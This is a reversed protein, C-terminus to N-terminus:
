RSPAPLVVKITDAKGRKLTLTQMAEQGNAKVTLRYDGCFGRLVVRGQADTTATANTWWEEHILRRLREYAPKPSLDRRVLGAPAGQWGGDMLDWWTIAEVAPHSFLVRYFKEVYEAQRAEGEATSPWEEARARNQGRWGHEGSLVTVETFHLPLGFRKFTECVQWVREIPWEGRHMHSQIGIAGLPKHASLLDQILQECAAGTNFDNYLLLAQPNAQHAWELAEGVVTAAGAEKVWRGLGNEVRHSVTAENVVDWRDIVGKFGAVIRRVRAELLRRAETPDQPGWAPYVEHWVLPHGKVAVGHEQLWRAQRMLHETHEQGPQPEYSGWYFGLTAYNLLDTFRRAYTEDREANRGGLLPFANAGFLFAHRQQALHVTAGAVPKGAPDVVRVELDTKRHQEIRAAAGELIEKETMRPEGLASPAKTAVAVTALLIGFRAACHRPRM